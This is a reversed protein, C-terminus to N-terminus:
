LTYRLRELFPLIFGPTKQDSCLVFRQLCVLPILPDIPNVGAQAAPLRSYPQGASGAPVLAGAAVSGAAGTLQQCEVSKALLDAELRVASVTQLKLLAKTEELANDLAFKEEQVIHWIKRVIGSCAGRLSPEQTYCEHCSFLNAVRFCKVTCSQCHHVVEASGQRRFSAQSKCEM